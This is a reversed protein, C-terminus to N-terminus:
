ITKIFCYQPQRIGFDDYDYIEDFGYLVFGNKPNTKNEYVVLDYGKPIDGKYKEIDSIYQIKNYSM